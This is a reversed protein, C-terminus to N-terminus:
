DQQLNTICHACSGLCGGTFYVREGWVQKSAMDEPHWNKPLNPASGDEWPGVAIDKFNDMKGPSDGDKCAHSMVAVDHLIEGFITFLALTFNTNLKM